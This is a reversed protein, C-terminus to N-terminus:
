LGTLGTLARYLGYFLLVIAVVVLVAGFTGWLIPVTIVTTAPYDPLPAIPTPVPTSTASPTPTATSQSLGSGVVPSLVVLAVALGVVFAVAVKAM